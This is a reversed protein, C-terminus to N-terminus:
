KAARASLEIRRKAVWARAEEESDCFVMEGETHRSLLVTARKTLSILTRMMLNAGIMVVDIPPRNKTWAAILRRVDPPLEYGPRITTILCLRRNQNLIEDAVDLYRQMDPVTWPSSIVSILMDGEVILLHPGAQVQM